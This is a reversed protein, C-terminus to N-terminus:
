GGRLRQAIEAADMGGDRLQAVLEKLRDQLRDIQAKTTVLEDLLRQQDPTPTPAPAPTPTPEDTM